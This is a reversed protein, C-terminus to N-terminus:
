KAPQEAQLNLDFYKNFNLRLQDYANHSVNDSGGFVVSGTDCVSVNGVSRLKTLTIQTAISGDFLGTELHEPNFVTVNTKETIVLFLLLFILGVFIMEIIIFITSFSIVTLILLLKKRIKVKSGTITTVEYPNFFFKTVKPNLAKGSVEYLALKVGDSTITTKLQRKWFLYLIIAVPILIITLSLFIITILQLISLGVSLNTTGEFSNVSM